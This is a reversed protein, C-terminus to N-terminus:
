VVKNLIERFLGDKAHCYYRYGISILVHSKFSVTVLYFSYHSFLKNEYFRSFIQSLLHSCVYYWVGVLSGTLFIAGICLWNGSLFLLGPCKLSTCHVRLRHNKRILIMGECSVFRKILIM